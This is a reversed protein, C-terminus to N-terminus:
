RDHNGRIDHICSFGKQHLLLVRCQIRRSYLVVICGVWHKIYLCWVLLSVAHNDVILYLCFCAEVEDLSRAVHWAGALSMPSDSVVKEEAIIEHYM